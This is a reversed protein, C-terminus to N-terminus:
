PITIPAMVSPVNRTRHYNFNKMKKDNVKKENTSLSFDRVEMTM